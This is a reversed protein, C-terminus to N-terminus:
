AYNKNQIQKVISRMFKTDAPYNLNEKNRVASEFLGRDMV